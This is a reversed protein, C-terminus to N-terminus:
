ARDAGTVGAPADGAAGCALHARRHDPLVPQTEPHATRDRGDGAGSLHAGASRAGAGRAVGRALQDGAGHHRVGGTRPVARDADACCVRDARRLTGPRAARARFGRLGPVRALVATLASSSASTPWPRGSLAGLGALRLAGVAGRALGGQRHRSEATRRVGTPRARNNAGCPAVGPLGCGARHGAGGAGRDARRPHVRAGDGGVAQGCGPQRPDCPRRLDPEAHRVPAAAGGGM